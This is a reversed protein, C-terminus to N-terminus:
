NKQQFCSINLTLIHLQLVIIESYSEWLISIFTDIMWFSNKLYLCNIKWKETLANTYVIIWRLKQIMWTENLLYTVLFINYALKEWKYHNDQNSEIISKETWIFWKKM